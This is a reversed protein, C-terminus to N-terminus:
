KLESTVFEKIRNIVEKATLITNIGEPDEKVMIQTYIAESAGPYIYFSITKESPYVTFSAKQRITKLVKTDHDIFLVDTSLLSATSKKALCIDSFHEDNDAHSSGFPLSLQIRTLYETLDKSQKSLFNRVITENQNKKVSDKISKFFEKILSGFTMSVTNNQIKETLQEAWTLDFIPKDSM